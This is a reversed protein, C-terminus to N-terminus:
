RLRLDGQDGARRTAGTAAFARGGLHSKYLTSRDGSGEVRTVRCRVGEQGAHVTYFSETVACPIKEGKCILVSNVLKAENRAADHGVAITGFCMNTTERVKIRQISNRQAASLSSRDGKYAAYLAAGLAVVEDVNVTSIPEQGFVRKVSHLVLPIRTSGGALFVGQLTGPEIGAEDLTAECLMEAQAVKSSITEEFELRTVEIM